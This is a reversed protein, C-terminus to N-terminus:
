QICMGNPAIGFDIIRTSTHRRTSRMGQQKPSTLGTLRSVARQCSPPGRESGSRPGHTDYCCYHLFGCFFYFLDTRQGRKRKDVCLLSVLRCKSYKFLYRSIMCFAVSFIFCTRGKDEKGSILVCFLSLDVSRTSLLYRSIV